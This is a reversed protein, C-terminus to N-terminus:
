VNERRIRIAFSELGFKCYEMCTPILVDNVTKAVLESIQDCDIVYRLIM